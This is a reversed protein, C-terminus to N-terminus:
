SKSQRHFITYPGTQTDSTVPQLAAAVGSFGSVVARFVAKIEKATYATYSSSWNRYNLFGVVAANLDAFAANM